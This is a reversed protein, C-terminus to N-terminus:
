GSVMKLKITDRTGAADSTIRSGCLWCFLHLDAKKDNEINTSCLYYYGSIFGRAKEEGREKKRQADRTVRSAVQERMGAMAAGGTATRVCCLSRLRVPAFRFSVRKVVLLTLVFWNPKSKVRGTSSSIWVWGSMMVFTAIGPFPM